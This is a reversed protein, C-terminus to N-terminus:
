PKSTRIFQLIAQQGPDNTEAIRAIISMHNREPIPMLRCNNRCDKLKGYFKEACPGDCFPLEHDGHLILFPPLGEKVHNIPSCLHRKDITKGFVREFLPNDDQVDYVGSISIVGNVNGPKLGVKELYTPDSSVLSVLHGGASHGALFLQEPKGGYKSINKSVWGIAQAVDSAQEPNMVKPSLRYNIVAVGIGEGAFSRGIKGYLDFWYNKDGQSWGGGHVFVVVPFDRRSAPLYLDLKHKRADASPSEYYTIDRVLEVRPAEVVYFTSLILFIFSYM